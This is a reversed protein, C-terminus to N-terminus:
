DEVPLKSLRFNKFELSEAANLDVLRCRAIYGGPNITVINESTRSDWNFYWFLDDADWTMDTEAVVLTRAKTFITVRMAVVDDPVISRDKFDTSTVQVQYLEGVYDTM